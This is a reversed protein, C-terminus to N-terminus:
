EKVSIACWEKEKEEAVSKSFRIRLIIYRMYRILVNSCCKERRGHDSSDQFPGIQVNLRNSEDEASALGSRTITARNRQLPSTPGESSKNGPIVKSVRNVIDNVVTIEVYDGTNLPWPNHAYKSFACWLKGINCHRDNVAPMEGNRVIINDKTSFQQLM